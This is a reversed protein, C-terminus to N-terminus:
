KWDSLVRWTFDLWYCKNPMGCWSCRAVIVSCKFTDEWTHILEPSALHIGIIKQHRGVCVLKVISSNQRGFGRCLRKLHTPYPIHINKMWLLVLYELFEVREFAVTMSFSAVYSWNWWALNIYLVMNMFYEARIILGKLKSPLLHVSFISCFISM